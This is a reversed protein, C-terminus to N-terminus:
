NRVRFVINSTNVTKPNEKLELIHSDILANLPCMVVVIADKPYHIWSCAFVFLSEACTSIDFIQPM